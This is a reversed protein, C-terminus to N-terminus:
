SMHAVVLELRANQGGSLVQRTGASNLKFIPAITVNGSFIDGSTLIRSGSVTFGTYASGVVYGLGQASNNVALQTSFQNQPVASGNLTAFDIQLDPSENGCLGSFTVTVLDGAAASAVLAYPSVSASWVTASGITLGTTFLFSALSSVRHTLAATNANVQTNTDNHLQEHNAQGVAINTPLDTM